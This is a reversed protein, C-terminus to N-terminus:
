LYKLKAKTLVYDVADTYDYMGVVEEGTFRNYQKLTTNQNIETCTKLKVWATYADGLNDFYLDTIYPAAGYCEISFQKHSDSPILSANKVVIYEYSDNKWNPNPESESIRVKIPTCSAM